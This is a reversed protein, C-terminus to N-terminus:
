AVCGVAIGIHHSVGLYVCALGKFVCCKVVSHEDTVRSFLCIGM